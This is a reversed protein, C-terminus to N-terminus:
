LVQFALEFGHATLDDSSFRKLEEKIQGTLLTTGEYSRSFNLVNIDDSAMFEELQYDTLLKMNVHNQNLMGYIYEEVGMGTNREIKVDIRNERCYSVIQEKSLRLHIWPFDDFYGFMHHGYPSHYLPGAQVYCHGGNRTVRKFENLSKVPDECHELTAISFTLDFVADDFGLEMANMKLYKIRSDPYNCGVAEMIDVGVITRPQENLLLDCVMGDSCGVDLVDKGYPKPIHKFMSGIYVKNYIIRNLDDYRDYNKM